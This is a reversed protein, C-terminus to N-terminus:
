RVVFADLWVKDDRARRDKRGTHEVRITHTGPTLTGSDFVRVGYRRKAAHLDVRRVRVSDVYVDAKGSVPNRRSIWRVGTGRFTLEASAPGESAQVSAGGRDRRDRTSAWEGTLTVDSSSEQHVGPSAGSSLEVQVERAQSMTVTCTTGSCAAGQWGLVRSGDDPKVTLTVPLGPQFEEYCDSGCTIGRPSSRLSGSGNGTLSTSLPQLEGDLSREDAPCETLSAGEPAPAGSIGAHLAALAPKPTGLGNEPAHERVGAFHPWAGGEALPVADQWQFQVAGIINLDSPAKRRVIERAGAYILAAQCGPEKVTYQNGGSAWGWETILLPKAADGHTAAVDRLGKVYAVMAGVDRAYPNLSLVDFYPAAGAAYLDALYGDSTGGGANTLAGLVVQAAPDAAKIAAYTPKLLDLYEEPDPDGKWWSPYDPENWVEWMLIPHHEKDCDWGLVPLDQCGWYTGHTGYREVMATAFDAMKQPDVPPTRYRPDHDAPLYFEPTYLFTPLVTVGRATAQRVLEDMVAWDYNGPSREIRDWWVYQRVMGVGHAGVDDLRQESRADGNQAIISMGDSWTGFFQDPEAQAARATTQTSTMSALGALVTLVSTVVTRRRM